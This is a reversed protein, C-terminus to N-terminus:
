SSFLKRMSVAGKFMFVLGTSMAVLDLPGEYWEPGIQGAPNPLMDVVIMATFCYFANIM